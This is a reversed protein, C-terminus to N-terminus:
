KIQLHDAVKSYDYIRSDYMADAFTAPMQCEGKATVRLPTYFITVTPKLTYHKSNKRYIRKPEPLNLFTLVRDDRIDQYSPKFNKSDEVKNTRKEKSLRENAIEFCAPIRGVTVINELKERNTLTIKQYLLDGVQLHSLDTPKNARTVFASQVSFHKQKKNEHANVPLPLYGSVEVAYNILKGKPDITVTTDELTDLLTTAKTIEISQKNYTLIADIKEDAHTNQYYEAVARLAFAKEQTTDLKNFHSALKQLLAYAAKDKGFLQLHLYLSFSLDRTKSYFNGGLLQRDSLKAYNFRNIKQEIAKLPTSLGANKLIIAMMYLSVIDNEDYFRNDYLTNIATDSLQNERSLLYAAYLREFKGYATHQYSRGRQVIERLADLIADLTPQPIKFDAKQLSLLVDSAYISAYPNVEGYSEWYAFDGNELQMTALKSIGERIFLERDKRLEKVYASEEHSTLANFYLLALLRSATQESCGYPYNVLDDLTNRLQALYNKSLSIKVKTGQQSFYNNPIKLIVKKSSEGRYVKTQLSDPSYVPLELTHLFQKQKTATINIEGKGIGNAYLTAEFLKSGKATLQINEPLDSLAVQKSTQVSLTVETAQDTTNFIRLPIKIKDGTLAFRPYSPKIIIDDRVILDTSAAGISEKDLAITVIKAKGNFQPIKIEV